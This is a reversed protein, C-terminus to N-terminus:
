KRRLTYVSHSDACRYEDMERPGFQKYTPCSRCKVMEM